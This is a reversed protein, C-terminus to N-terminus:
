TTEAQVPTGRSLMVASSLPLSSVSASASLTRPPSSSPTRRGPM